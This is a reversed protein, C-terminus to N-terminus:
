GFMAVADGIVAVRMRDRGRRVPVGDGVAPVGVRERRLGHAGQRGVIGQAEDHFELEFPYKGHFLMDDDDRGVAEDDNVAGRQLEVEGGRFLQMGDLPMLPAPMHFPRVVDVM